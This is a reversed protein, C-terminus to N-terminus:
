NGCRGCRCRNQGCQCPLVTCNRLIFIPRVTVPLNVGGGGCVCVCWLCTSISLGITLLNSGVGDSMVSQCTPCYVVSVAHATWSCHNVTLTTCWPVLSMRENETHVIAWAQDVLAGSHLEFFKEGSLGRRGSNTYCTPSYVVSAPQITSNRTSRDLSVRESSSCDHFLAHTVAHARKGGRKTM